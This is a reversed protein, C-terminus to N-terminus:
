IFVPMETSLYPRESSKIHFQLKRSHCYISLLLAIAVLYMDVYEPLRTLVLRPLHPFCIASITEGSKSESSNSKFFIEFIDM